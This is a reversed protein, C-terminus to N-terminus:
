YFLEVTEITKETVNHIWYNIQDKLVAIRHEWEKEKSKVINLLGSKNEL